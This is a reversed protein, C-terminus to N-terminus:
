EDLVEGRQQRSWAESLVMRKREVHFLRSESLASELRAAEADLADPGEGATWPLAITRPAYGITAGALEAVDSISVPVRERRWRRVVEGTSPDIFAACLRVSTGSTALRDIVRHRHKSAQRNFDRRGEIAEHIRVLQDQLSSLARPRPSPSSEERRIRDRLEEAIIALRELRSVKRRVRRRRRVVGLARLRRMSEWSCGLMRPARERELVWPPLARVAKTVYKSLYLATARRSKVPQVDVGGFQWRDRWLRWCARRVATLTVRKPLEVVVHYHPWGDGTKSQYEMVAMWVPADGAILRMLDTVKPRTERHAHDPDLFLSRDVTLTVLVGRGRPISEALSM